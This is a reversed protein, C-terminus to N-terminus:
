SMSIAWPMSPTAPVSSRATSASGRRRTGRRAPPGPTRRPARATVRSRPRGRRSQAAPDLTGPSLLLDCRASISAASAAPSLRTSPSRAPSSTAAVAAASTRSQARADLAAACATTTARGPARAARRAVRRELAGVRAGRHPQQGPDAGPGRRACAPRRRTATAGASPGRPRRRELEHAGPHLAVPRLARAGSSTVPEACSRACRSRGHRHGARLHLRRDQEGAEGRGAVTTTSVRARVRGVVSSISPRAPTSRRVADVVARAAATVRM